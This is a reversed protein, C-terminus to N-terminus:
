GFSINSCKSPYKEEVDILQLEKVSEFLDTSAM